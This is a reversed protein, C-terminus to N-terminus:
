KVGKVEIDFILISNAPIKPLEKSGYGLSPPAIIFAKGGDNLMLMIEKWAGILVPVEFEVAETQEDFITGDLLQGKYTFAVSDKYQIKRGEGQEIIQYYLGSPSKECDIKHEKIYSSIKTDFQDLDDENYTKCSAITIALIFLSFILRM